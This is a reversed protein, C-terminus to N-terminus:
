FRFDFRGERIEIIDGAPSTVDFSFEGAFVGNEGDLLTIELAGSTAVVSYPTPDGGTMEAIEGYEFLIGNSEWEDITYSGAAPLPSLEWLFYTGDSLNTASVRLLSDTESYSATINPQLGSIQPLWVVDDVLAGVSNAGVSTIPPLEPKCSTLGIALLLSFITLIYKM